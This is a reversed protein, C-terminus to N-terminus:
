NECIIGTEEYRRSRGIAGKGVNDPLHRDETSLHKRKLSLSIPDVGRNKVDEQIGAKKCTM